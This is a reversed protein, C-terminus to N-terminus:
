QDGSQRAKWQQYEDELEGGGQDWWSKVEDTIGQGLGQMTEFFGQEQGTADYYQSEDIDIGFRENMARIGSLTPDGPILLQSFDTPGPVSETAKRLPIESPEGQWNMRAALTFDYENKATIAAQRKSMNTRDKRWDALAKLYSKTAAELQVTRTRMKENDQARIRGTSTEGLPRIGDKTVLYNGPDLNLRKVESQPLLNYSTGAGLNIAGAQAVDMLYKQFGPNNQAYEFERTKTTSPDALEMAKLEKQNMGSLVSTQMNGINALAQKQYIPNGSAMMRKQMEVLRQNQPVSADFMGTGSVQNMLGAIPDEGEMLEDPSMDYPVSIAPTGFIEATQDAAQQALFDQRKNAEAQPNIQARPFMLSRFDPAQAPPMDQKIFGLLAALPITNDAM